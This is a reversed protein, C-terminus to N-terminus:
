LNMYLPGVGSENFYFENENAGDMQCVVSEFQYKKCFPLAWKRTQDIAEKGNDNLQKSDFFLELEILGDKLGINIFVNPIPIDLIILSENEVVLDVYSEQRFVEKIAVTSDLNLGEPYHFRIVKAKSLFFDVFSLDTKSIGGRFILEIKSDLIM